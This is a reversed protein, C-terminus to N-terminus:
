PAVPLAGSQVVATTASVFYGVTYGTGSQYAGSAATSLLAGATGGTFSSIVAIPAATIVDGVAGGELAVIVNTASTATALKWGSNYALLDGPVCAEALTIPFLLERPAEVLRPKNDALAM